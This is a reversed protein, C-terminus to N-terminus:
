KSTRKDKQEKARKVVGELAAEAEYKNCDSVHAFALVIGEQKGFLSIRRTAGSAQSLEKEVQLYDKSLKARLESTLAAATKTTLAVSTMINGKPRHSLPQEARM